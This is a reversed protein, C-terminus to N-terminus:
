EHESPENEQTPFYLAADGGTAFYLCKQDFQVCVQDFVRFLVPMREVALAVVYEVCDDRVQVNSEKDYWRGHIGGSIKGNIREMECQQWGAPFDVNMQSEFWEWQEIEHSRNDSNRLVPILFRVEKGLLEIPM